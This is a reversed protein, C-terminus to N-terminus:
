LFSFLIYCLFLIVLLFGFQFLVPRSFSLTDFFFVLSWDRPWSGDPFRKATSPLYCLSECSSLTCLILSMPAILRLHSTKLLDRGWLRWFRHLLHPPFITLAVPSSQTWLFLTKWVCCVSSCRFDSVMASQPLGACTKYLHSRLVLFPFHVCVGVRVLFTMWTALSFSNEWPIVPYILWPLAVGLLLKHICFLSCMKTSSKNQKTQINKQRTSKLKYQNHTKHSM